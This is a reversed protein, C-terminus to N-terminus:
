RGELNKLVDSVPSEGIKEGGLGRGGVGGERGSLLLFVLSNSLVYNQNKKKMFAM